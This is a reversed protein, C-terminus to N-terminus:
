KKDLQGMPYCRRYEKVIASDSLAYINYQEFDKLLRGLDICVTDGDLPVEIDLITLTIKTVYPLFAYLTKTGGIVVATPYKNFASEVTHCVDYCQPLKNAYRSFQIIHRKPLKPLGNLTTTGAIVYRNLTKEKFHELDEKFYWPLKNGVGVVGNKSVALIAEM